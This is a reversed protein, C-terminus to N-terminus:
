SLPEHAKECAALADRALQDLWVDDSPETWPRLVEVLLPDAILEAAEFVAMSAQEGSLADLALPLALKRDRKAIGLLAEARVVDNEDNAASLLAERIEPTDADESALLMTAWDRNSLDGDRTMAILKRMNGNAFASGSLPVEEAIVAKLFDSTPEYRDTM